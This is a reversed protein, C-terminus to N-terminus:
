GSWAGFLRAIVWILIVTGFTLGVVRWRDKSSVTFTDVGDEKALTVFCAGLAIVTFLVPNYQRSLFCIGIFFATGMALFGTRWARFPPRTTRPTRGVRRLSEFYWFVMGIFAMGGLIGLEALVQVFSNHAVLAHYETFRGYGVGTIPRQKLMQLGESWAQIRGQASDEESDMEAMRSPGLALVGGLMAVVVIPGVKSGFRHWGIIALAAGLGLVGGRSNTYYFALLMPVLVALALIRSGWGLAANLVTVFLFPLVVLMSLALDNPDNFIGVSRIRLQGDTTMPEVGGFGFGTNWQQIGSLAHFLMFATLLVVAGRLQPLTRVATRILAYQFVVQAFSILGYIGGGLWGTALNSLIIALWLGWLLRDQPMEAVRARGEIFAWGLLPAAVLSAVMVLPVEAWGEILETPRIYILGLYVTTIFYLV